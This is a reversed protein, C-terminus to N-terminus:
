RSALRGTWEERTLEYVALENGREPDTTRLWPRMGLKEMVRGSAGNRPDYIGIIRDLGVRDLGYEVSARGAETALGQGWHDPHLRWGVEVAPMVEPLWTPVALGVFGILSHVATLEAAWLGFGHTEQHSIQRAVFQETAEHDLGGGFPFWWVAEDAFIPTLADIDDLSWPRLTLRDTRIVTM